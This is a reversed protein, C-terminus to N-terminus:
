YRHNLCFKSSMAIYRSLLSEFTQKFFVLISWVLTPPKFDLFPLYTPVKQPVGQIRLFLMAVLMFNESFDHDRFVPKVSWFVGFKNKACNNCVSYFANRGYFTRKVSKLNQNVTIFFHSFVCNLVEQLSFGERRKGSGQSLRYNSRHEAAVFSNEACCAM